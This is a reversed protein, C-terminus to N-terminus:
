LLSVRVASEEGSCAAHHAYDIDWGYADTQGDTVSRGIFDKIDHGTM